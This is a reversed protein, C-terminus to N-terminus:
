FIVYLVRMRSSVISHGFCSQLIIPWGTYPGSYILMLMLHAFFSLSFLVHVLFLHALQIAHTLQVMSPLSVTGHCDFFQVSGKSASAVLSYTTGLDIGIVKRNKDQGPEQIQLM